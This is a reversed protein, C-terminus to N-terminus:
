AACGAAAILPPPPMLSSHRSDAGVGTRVRRGGMVTQEGHGRWGGRCDCRGGQPGSQDVANQASLMARLIQGRALLGMKAAGPQHTTRSHSAPCHRYSSSQALSSARPLQVRPVVLHLPARPTTDSHTGSSSAGHGLAAVPVLSASRICAARFTFLLLPTLLTKPIGIRKCRSGLERVGLYDGGLAGEFFSILTGKRRSMRSSPWVTSVIRASPSAPDGRGRQEFDDNIYWDM